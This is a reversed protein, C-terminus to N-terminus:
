IQWKRQRLAFKGLLAGVDGEGEVGEALEAEGAVVVEHHVAVQVWDLIGRGGVNGEPRRVLSTQGGVHIQGLDLVDKAEDPVLEARHHLLLALADAQV